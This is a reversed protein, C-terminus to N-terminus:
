TEPHRPPELRRNFLALERLFADFREHSATLSALLKLNLASSTLAWLLIAAFQPDIKALLPLLYADM